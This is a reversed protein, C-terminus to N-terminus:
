DIGLFIQQHVITFKTKNLCYLIKKKHPPLSLDKELKKLHRKENFKKNKGLFFRTNNPLFHKGMIEKIPLGISKELKRSKKDLIIYWTSNGNTTVFAKAYHM